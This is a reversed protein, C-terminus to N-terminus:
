KSYLVANGKNHKSFINGIRNEGRETLHKDTSDKSNTELSKELDKAANKEINSQIHNEMHNETIKEENRRNHERDNERLVVKSKTITRKAAERQSERREEDREERKEEVQGSEEESYPVVLRHMSRELGSLEIGFQQFAEKAKEQREQTEVHRSKYVVRHEMSAWLDMTLTRIQVEVPYYEMDDIGYVPFGFVLHYSQYGNKKPHAIYDKERLLLMDKQRKLQQVMLYVDEEFYCIIRIGAIDSLYEKANELSPEFGKRVLKEKISEEKKMRSQVNHIPYDSSNRRYADNLTHIRILLRDAADRYPAIWKSYEEIIFGQKGKM